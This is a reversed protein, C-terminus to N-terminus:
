NELYLKIGNDGPYNNDICMESFYNGVDFAMVMWGGYEYDILKLEANNKRSILINNEQADM